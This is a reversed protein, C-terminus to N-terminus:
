TTEEYLRVEKKNIDRASIIRIKQRRKTFVVYLLRNKKTKGLIIFREEKESHLTDKLIVKGDDLFIEETEKDEVTHKKNKSINGVDWEFELISKDVKM